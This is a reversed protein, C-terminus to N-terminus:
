TGTLVYVERNWIIDCCVCFSVSLSPHISSSALHLDCVCLCMCSESYVKGSLRHSCASNGSSIGPLFSSVTHLLIPVSKTTPLAEYLHVCNSISQSRKAEMLSYSFLHLLPPFVTSVSFLYLSSSLILLLTCLAVFTSWVFVILFNFLYFACCFWLKVEIHSFIGSLFCVITTRLFFFQLYSM